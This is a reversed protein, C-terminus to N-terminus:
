TRKITVVYFKTNHVPMLDVEVASVKANPYTSPPTLTKFTVETLGPTYDWCKMWKTVPGGPIVVEITRQGENKMLDYEHQKSSLTIM